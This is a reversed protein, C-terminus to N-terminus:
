TPYLSAAPWLSFIGCRPVFKDTEKQQEKTSIDDFQIYHLLFTFHGQSMAARFFNAGFTLSWVNKTSFHNDRRCAFILVRLKAHIEGPTTCQVTAKQQKYKAAETDIKQNTWQVIESIVEDLVFM